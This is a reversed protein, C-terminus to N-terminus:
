SRLKYKKPTLSNMISATNIPNLAMTCLVARKKKMLNNYVILDKDDKIMEIMDSYIQDFLANVTEIVDIDLEM